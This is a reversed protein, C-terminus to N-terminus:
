SPTEEEAGDLFSLPYPAPRGLEQSLANIIKKMEIVKLERNLTARNLRRLEENRTKLEAESAKITTIDNQLALEARKRDGIDRDLGRYGLLTGDSALIPIGNTAIYVVTGNKHLNVNELDRFKEKASAIRAFAPAVRAAEDTPMLDFPTKGLIEAPTYGLLDFVSESVYTYCWQADVEWIWDASASVIDHFRRESAILANDGAVRATIDLLIGIVAPRDQYFFRRGHVEVNIVHGDKHLGEFVYAVDSIEGSIRRLVNKTVRARDAAAVLRVFPLREIIEDPSDYGFVAAFAPNVYRFLGDQIIYIGALSQEVLARFRSESNLLALKAQVRATIDRSIGFTGVIKQEPNRLVGKVSLFTRPGQPTNLVEENTEVNGSTRVRRDMEMLMKAQDAPFIARDDRGLVETANKGVFRCAANNFLLYRGDQDKAFIADASNDVIAALLLYNRQKERQIEQLRALMRQILLYLLISTVTVFLWGKVMSARTIAEPSNFLRSVAQDSLLIWLAGFLAYIGAVRLADRPPNLDDKNSMVNGGDSINRRGFEM